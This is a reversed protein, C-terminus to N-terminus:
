APLLFDDREEIARVILRMTDDEMLEEISTFNFARVDLSRKRWLADLPLHYREFVLYAYRLALTRLQERDIGEPSWNALLDFYEESSSVDITFGCGRFHTKSVVICPIGLLQMEMGVTSTHVIGLDAVPYVSWSNIKERPEIVRVNAPLDAFRARIIDAFPQKTGIVMEAPHIKVVLQKDPQGAIWEITKLVWEVPNEFAIERQASSGDWLVNTYLVFTRKDPDLSLRRRMAEVTEEPGLNYRFLDRDHNRRSQMYATITAEQAPTLPIDRVRQWEGQVDIWDAGKKWNFRYTQRKKGPNYIVTPIGADNLIRRAPGWTCYLGHSMIVRDPKRAVLRHTAAATLEAAQRFLDRRERQTPSDPDLTGVQYHKLLASDIFEGFGEDPTGQGGPAALQSLPIVDFGLNRLFTRGYSWCKECLRDWDAENGPKKNECVPLLRDCVVFSVRHGRSELAFALAAETAVETTHGGLMTLFVIDLPASAGNVRRGRRLSRGQAIMTERGLHDSIKRYDLGLAAGVAAVPPIGILKLRDKLRVNFRSLSSDPM